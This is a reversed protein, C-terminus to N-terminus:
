RTGNKINSHINENSNIPIKIMWNEGITPHKLEDEKTVVYKKWSKYQKLRELKPVLITGAKLYETDAM